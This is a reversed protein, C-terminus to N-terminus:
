RAILDHLKYTRIAGDEGAIVFLEGNFSFAMHTPDAYPAELRAVITGDQTRQIVIHPSDCRAALYAGDASLVRHRNWPMVRPGKMAQIVGGNEMNLIRDPNYELILNLETFVAYKGDESIAISPGPSIKLGDSIQRAFTQAKKYGLSDELSSRDWRQITYTLKRFMQRPNLAKVIAVLSDHPTGQTFVMDCPRFICNNDGINNGSPHCETSQKTRLDVVTAVPSQITTLDITADGTPFASASPHLTAYALYQGCSSFRTTLTGLRDFMPIAILHPTQYVITRCKKTHNDCSM